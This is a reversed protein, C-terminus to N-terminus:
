RQAASAATATSDQCYDHYLDEDDDDDDNQDDDTNHQQLLLPRATTVTIMICIRTMTMATM